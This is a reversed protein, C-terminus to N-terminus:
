ALQQPAGDIPAPHSCNGLVTDNGLEHYRGPLCHRVVYRNDFMHNDYPLVCDTFVTDTAQLVRAM